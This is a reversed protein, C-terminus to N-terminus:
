LLLALGEAYSAVRPLPPKGHRALETEAIASAEPLRDYPISPYAHHLSHHPLGGMLFNVLPGAAINRSTYLQTLEYTTSPRWLGHHEIMGRAQM